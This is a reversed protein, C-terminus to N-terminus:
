QFQWRLVQVLVLKKSKPGKQYNINEDWIGVEVRIVLGFNIKFASGKSAIWMCHLHQHHKKVEKLNDCNSQFNGGKCNSPCYKQEATCVFGIKSFM